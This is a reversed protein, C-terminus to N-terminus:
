GRRIFDYIKTAPTEKMQSIYRKGEYTPRVIYAWGSLTSADIKTLLGKNILYDIQLQDYDPSSISLETNTEFKQYLERLADQAQADIAM